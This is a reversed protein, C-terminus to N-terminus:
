SWDAQAFAPVTPVAAAIKELAAMREGYTGTKVFAVFKHFIEGVVNRSLKPSATVSKGRRRLSLVVRHNGDSVTLTLSDHRVNLKTNM